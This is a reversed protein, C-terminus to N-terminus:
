LFLPSFRQKLSSFCKGGRSRETGFAQSARRVEAASPRSMKVNQLVFRRLIAQKPGFSPGIGVSSAHRPKDTRTCCM